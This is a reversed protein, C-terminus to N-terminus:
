GSDAGYLSGRGVRVTEPKGRCSECFDLFGVDARIRNGLRSRNRGEGDCPISRIRCGAPGIRGHNQRFSRRATPKIASVALVSARLSVEGWEGRYFVPSVQLRRIGARLFGQQYVTGVSFGAGLFVIKTDGLAFWQTLSGDIMVDTETRPDVTPM